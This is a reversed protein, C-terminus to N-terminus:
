VDQGAGRRAAANWRRRSRVQKEPDCGRIIVRQLLDGTAL